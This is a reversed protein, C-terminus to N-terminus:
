PKRRDLASSLRGSMNLSDPIVEILNDVDAGRRPRVLILLAGSCTTSCTM